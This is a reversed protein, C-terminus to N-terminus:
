WRTPRHPSPRPSVCAPRFPWPSFSLIPVSVWVCPPMWPSPPSLVATATNSIFMTTLSTVFYVMALLGQPGINGLGHLLFGSIAATIGTKDFATSMPIMAAILVVSAWNISTYAEEMNRLCGTLVMFVAALLVAAVGPIVDLVMLLIMGAMILAAMPAKRDLTVRAARKEPQGLLM